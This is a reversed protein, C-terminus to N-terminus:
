INKWTRKKIVNLISSKTVFPFAEHIESVTKNQSHLKRIEIVDEIELKNRAMEPIKPPAILDDINRIGKSYRNVILRYNANLKNSLELATYDVGKYNIVINSDRNNSQVKMTTWRCNSPEYNGANDIRDITLDDKYGNEFSWEAFNDFSERWNDCVKINKDMYHRSDGVYCRRIMSSWIGYLRINQYKYKRKFGFKDTLNKQDQEKKLCGCSRTKGYSDKRIEITNGCVCQYLGVRRNRNGFERQGLDKIFTLRNEVM